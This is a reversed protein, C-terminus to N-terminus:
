APVWQDLLHKSKILRSLKIPLVYFQQYDTATHIEEGMYGYHIDVISINELLMSESIHDIRIDDVGTNPCAVYFDKEEIPKGFTTITIKIAKERLEQIRTHGIKYVIMTDELRLTLPKRTPNHAQARGLTNSVLLSIKEADCEIKKFTTLFKVMVESHMKVNEQHQELIQNILDIPAIKGLSLTLRDSLRQIDRDLQIFTNCWYQMILKENLITNLHLRSFQMLSEKLRDLVEGLKDYLVNMGTYALTIETQYVEPDAQLINFIKAKLELELKELYLRKSNAKERIYKSRINFITVISTGLLIWMYIIKFQWFNFATPLTPMGTIAKFTLWSLPLAFLFMGIFVPSPLLFSAVILSGIFIFLFEQQLGSFLALLSGLFFFVYFISLYWVAMILWRKKRFAENWIPYIILMAIM